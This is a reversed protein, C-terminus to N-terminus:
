WLAVRALADRDVQDAVHPQQHQQPWCARVAHMVCQETPGRAGGGTRLTYACSRWQRAASDRPRLLLAPVDVQALRVGGRTWADSASAGAAASRVRDFLIQEMTGALGGFWPAAGRARRCAACYDVFPQGLVADVLVRPLSIIWDGVDAASAAEVDSSSQLRAAGGRQGAADMSRAQFFAVRGLAREALRTLPAYWLLDPRVKLVADFRLTASAELSVLATRCGHWSALQSVFRQKCAAESPQSCRKAYSQNPAADLPQLSCPGACTPRSWITRNPQLTATM